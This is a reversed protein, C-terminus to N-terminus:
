STGSLPLLGQAQTKTNQALKGGLSVADPSSVKSRGATCSVGVCVNTGKSRGLSSGM